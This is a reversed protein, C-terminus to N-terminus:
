PILFLIRSLGIAVLGWFLFRTSINLLYAKQDIRKKNLRYTGRKTSETKLDSVDVLGAIDGITQLHIDKTEKGENLRKVLSQPNPSTHWNQTRYARFLLALSLILLGLGIFFLVNQVSPYLQWSLIFILANFGAIISIKTDINAANKLQTFVSQRVTQYVMEITEDKM